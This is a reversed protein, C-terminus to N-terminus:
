RNRLCNQFLDEIKNYSNLDTIEQYRKGDILEFSQNEQFMDEEVEEDYYNGYNGGFRAPGLRNDRPPKVVRVEAICGIKMREVEDEYSQVYWSIKEKMKAGYIEQLLKSKRVLEVEEAGM